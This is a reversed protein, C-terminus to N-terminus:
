LSERLDRVNEQKGLRYMKPKKLEGKNLLNDPELGGLILCVSSSLSKSQGLM